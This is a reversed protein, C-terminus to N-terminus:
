INSNKNQIENQVEKNKIIKYISWISLEYQDALKRIVASRDSGNRMWSSYDGFVEINRRNTDKLIRKM